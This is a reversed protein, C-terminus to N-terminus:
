RRRRRAAIHHVVDRLWDRDTSVQLHQARSRRLREDISTRREAAAAAYRARFKKSSTQVERRQGTEPDVLALVGVNPLDDERPDTLHAVIVDHRAALSRLETPWDSDDLLDSVVVVLGRRRALLRVKRLSAALTGDEGTTRGRRQLRVVLDLVASRGARPPVVRTEDGDFVVAGIRNGARVVLFGFAGVVSAALDRKEHRATGYDLSASGDIVFWTELEREAITNRVHVEGSRATLNWDIRRVDDGPQYLRGEGGESGAGLATSQHDGHILGDLKRNITLELLRLSRESSAVEATPPPAAGLTATAPTSM